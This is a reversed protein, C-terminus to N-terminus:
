QKKWLEDTRIEGNRNVARILSELPLNGYNHITGIVPLEPQDAYRSSSEAFNLLRVFKGKHENALAQRYFLDMRAAATEGPREVLVIRDAFQLAKQVAADPCSGLDLVMADFLGCRRIRKLVEEIETETVAEYDALREFGDVYFIGDMGQKMMGKLMLEFNVNERSVADLLEVMGEEGGPNVCVSSNLPELSVFLVSKGAATLGAAAALAATTKGSGGIPSYVAAAFTKESYDFEASYGAKEAYMRILEKYIASIRQYKEVKAFEAYWGAQRAGDSYLLVPLRVGPFSLKEESLDPDFLAIDFQKEEMAEQFKGVDTFRHVSLEGYQGLAEALRERYESDQDAVAISINM